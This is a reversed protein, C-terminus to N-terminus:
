EGVLVLKIQADGTVVMALQDAQTESTLLSIHWLDEQRAADEVEVVSTVQAQAVYEGSGTEGQPSAIVNVVDGAAPVLTPLEAASVVLGVLGDGAGTVEVPDGFMEATVVAGAGIDTLAVRGVLTELDTGSVYGVDGDTGVQATTLDDAELVDGRQLDTDLVVVEERSRGSLALLVAALACGAILLVGLVLEPLRRRATTAPPEVRLGDRRATGAPSGQRPDGSHPTGSTLYEGSRTYEPPAMPTRESM